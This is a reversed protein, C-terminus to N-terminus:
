ASIQNITTKKQQLKKFTNKSKSVFEKILNGELIKETFLAMEDYLTKSEIIKLQNGFRKVLEKAYIPNDGWDECGIHIVVDEYDFTHQDVIIAEEETKMIVIGGEQLCEMFPSSLIHESLEVNSMMWDFDEYPVEIAKPLLNKFEFIVEGFERAVLINKSFSVYKNKHHKLRKTGNLRKEELIKIANEFSTGHFLSNSLIM